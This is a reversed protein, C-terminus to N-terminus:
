DQVLCRTQLTTGIKQHVPLESLSLLKGLTVCGTLPRWWKTSSSDRSVAAGDIPVCNSM